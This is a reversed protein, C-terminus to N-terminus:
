AGVSAVCQASQVVRRVLEPDRYVLEQTGVWITVEAKMLDRVHLVVPQGAIADLGVTNAIPAAPSTWNTPARRAGNGDTPISNTRASRGLGMGALAIGAGLGISSRQLVRRRTFNVM